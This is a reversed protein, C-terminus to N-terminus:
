CRFVQLSAASREDVCRDPRVYSADPVTAPAVAHHPAPTRDCPGPLRSAGPAAQRRDRTRVAEAPGQPVSAEGHCANADAPAAISTHAPAFSHASALLPLALLLAIVYAM